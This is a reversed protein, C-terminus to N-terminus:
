DTGIIPIRVNDFEAGTLVAFVDSDDDLGDVWAVTGRSAMDMTCVQDAPPTVFTVTVETGAGAVNEVVPVCSSSGWTLIVFQGDEDTWGASPLYDVEGSPDLGAVGDLDTDGHYGDGTVRIELEQTPDVGEPLGVLTVRPAMDRTCATDAAPEVFEVDLVGNAYAVDGATPVCTSSGQTVLGVVRGNDLWAADVEVETSAGGSGDTTASPTSGGSGAPTACATLAGALLLALGLGAALSHSRVPM